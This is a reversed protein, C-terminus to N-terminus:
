LRIKVNNNELINLYTTINQLEADCRPCTGKCPGDYTCNIPHYILGNKEALLSRLQKLTKCITKGNKVRAKRVEKFKSPLVYDFRDVNTFGLSKVFSIASEIDKETSYNPIMPIRIIVSNVDVNKALWELNRIVKQNSKGTYAIYQKNSLCKLDVFFYDISFACLQLNELSVNLSTEVNISWRHPKCLNRFETIFRPYILPEGGGFTIGGKTARFYYDDIKVIDYLQQSSIWNNGENHCDSNLCYKCNLPCGYFAVLTTIGNGDSNIRHRDVGLIPATGDLHNRVFDDNDNLVSSPESFVGSLILYELM